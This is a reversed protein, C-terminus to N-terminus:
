RIARELHMIFADAMDLVRQYNGEEFAQNMRVRADKANRFAAPNKIEDKQNQQSTAVAESRSTEQSEANEPEEKETDTREEPIEIKESTTEVTVNVPKEAEPM